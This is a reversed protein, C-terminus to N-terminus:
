FVVRWGSGASEASAGYRLFLLGKVQQVGKQNSSGCMVTFRYLALYIRLSREDACM